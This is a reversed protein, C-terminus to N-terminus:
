AEVLVRLVNELPFFHNKKGGEEPVFLVGDDFEVDDVSKVTFTYDAKEQEPNPDINLYVHVTAM